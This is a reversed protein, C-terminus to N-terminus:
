EASSLERVSGLKMNLRRVQEQTLRQDTLEATWNPPLKQMVTAVAEERPVAAAWLQFAAVDNVVNDTATVRVVPVGLALQDKM